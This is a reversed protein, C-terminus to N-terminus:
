KFQTLLDIFAYNNQEPFQFFFNPFIMIKNVMKKENINNM